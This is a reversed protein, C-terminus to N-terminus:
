RGAFRPIVDDALQATQALMEADSAAVPRLVFKSIGAAVYEEVRAAIADADGVALYTAPDLGGGLRALGEATKQVISEELSGFRFPFGAGYHDADITRGSEATAAKIKVVVPAVQGPSQIGGLWGTGFRATRRIAADSSGGIWIPLPQQKPRPAITVGTYHFHKGEFNVDEESWLRALLQLMEDARGARGQFATNTAGFEPALESGVGFVPLLRGESLFDLTACEKALVLPDRLPLVIANMGFKLRRTRGAIVGFAAIPEIALSRSVLRESIWVSDIGREECLDIWELFAAPSSFPFGAIGLGIGISM